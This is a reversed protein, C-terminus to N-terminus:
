YIKLMQLKGREVLGNHNQHSEILFEASSYVHNCSTQM